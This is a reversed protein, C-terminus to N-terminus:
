VREMTALLCGSGGWCCYIVGRGNLNISPRLRRRRHPRLMSNDVVDFNSYTPADGGNKGSDRKM